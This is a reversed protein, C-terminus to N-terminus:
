KPRQFLQLKWKYEKLLQLTAFKIDVETIEDHRQIIQM